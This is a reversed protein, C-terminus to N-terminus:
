HRGGAQTGARAAPHAHRLPCGIAGLPASTRRVCPRLWPTVIAGRRWQHRVHQMRERATGLQEHVHAEANRNQDRDCRHTVSRSQHTCRHCCHRQPPQAGVKHHSRSLGRQGRKMAKRSSAIGRQHPLIRKHQEIAPHIRSQKPRATEPSSAMGVEVRERAAQKKRRLEQTSAQGTRRPQRQEEKTRQRQARTHREGVM